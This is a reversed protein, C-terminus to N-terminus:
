AKVEKPRTVMWIVGLIVDGLAWLVILIGVGIATGTETAQTCLKEGISHVCSVTNHASAAGVIVWILMLANFVLVLWSMKRWHPRKM